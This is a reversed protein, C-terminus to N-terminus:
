NQNEQNEQNELAALRRKLEEIEAEKEQAEKKIKERKGDGLVNVIKIIELVIIILCPIIIVCTVVAPTKLAYVLWGLPFNAWVVKGIVYNYSETDSTDIVQTLTDESAKNDGALEIIYGGEKETIKIVRHTITVQETYKYRFTLVDGVRVAKYWEKAEEADTPVVDIVLLTKIPLEKIDYDSVDTEECKEMSDSRVIRIQKGFVTAAGDADKKTAISLVVVFLAIALIVYLLVNGAIKCVRWVKKM